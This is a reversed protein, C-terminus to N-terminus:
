DGHELTLAEGFGYEKLKRYLTTKGIGLLRAAMLKDGKLRQITGLIAQKELEALPTVEPPSGSPAEARSERAAVIVARRAEVGFHQLNPPLDQAHVHPGSALACAREIANELERVNGPWDYELLLKLADDSLAFNTGSERSMRDLFHAALIPVDSRRERLPPIRLNVVNLRYFLDKRFIGKTVMPALDHHTAALIRARIAIKRTGGVPRAEKEQLVRVLKAQLELPMEGIEDLFITGDEAASLIGESRRSQGTAETEQGFLEGEILAPALSGCDVPIFPKGSNPGSQHIARAVLEKGTGSEGLILVPHTSQAVKALIRYLKQMETSRGVLNGIGGESHMQERLSRSASNVQRSEAARDLVAAFEEMGFPKTLYDAAGARMTEVATGVSASATMAIVAMDPKLARAEQLLGMSEQKPGKLDLFLIDAPASQLRERVEQATAVGVALFGRKTGIQVCAARTAPDADAVLLYLKGAGMEMELDHSMTSMETHEKVLM